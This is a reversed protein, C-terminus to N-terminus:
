ILYKTLRHVQSPVKNLNESGQRDAYRSSNNTLTDHQRNSNFRQNDNDYPNVVKLEQMKNAGTQIPRYQSNTQMREDNNQQVLRIDRKEVVQTAKKNAKGNKTGVVQGGQTGRVVNNNRDRSAFCLTKTCFTWLLLLLLLLVM